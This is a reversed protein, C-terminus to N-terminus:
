KTDDGLSLSYFLLSLLLSSFSPCHLFLYPFSLSSVSFIFFFFGRGKSAVLITPRAWSNALILKVGRHRLICSMKACAKASRM